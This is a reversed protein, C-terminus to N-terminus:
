LVSSGGGGGQGLVEWLISDLWRCDERDVLIVRDRLQHEEVADPSAKDRRGVEGQRRHVEGSDRVVEDDGHDLCAGEDQPQDANDEQADVQWRSPVTM